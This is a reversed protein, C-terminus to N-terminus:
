ARPNGDGACYRWKWVVRNNSSGRRLSYPRFQHGQLDFKLMLARFLIRFRAPSRSWIPIHSLRKADRVEKLTRLIELVRFDTITIAENAANRRGSKTGQLRCIGSTDGLILDELCVTMAEGTRLLCHFALVLVASMELDARALAFAALSFVLEETLPPARCPIELRRWVSFLKWSHPVQRKTWPQFFNLASLADGITLLPEGSEWMTHIWDCVLDDLSALSNCKELTPLIKKLAGYYRTKTADSLAADDLNIHRRQRIREARTFRGAFVKPGM